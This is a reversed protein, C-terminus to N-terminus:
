IDFQLVHHYQDNSDIYVVPSIRIAYNPMMLTDKVIKVGLCPLLTPAVETELERLLTVLFKIQVPKHAVRGNKGSVGLEM